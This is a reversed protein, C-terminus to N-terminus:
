CPVRVIETFNADDPPMASSVDAIEIRDHVSGFFARITRGKVPQDAARLIRLFDPLHVLLQVTGYGIKLYPIM